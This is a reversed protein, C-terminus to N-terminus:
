PKSYRVAAARIRAWVGASFTDVVEVKTSEYAPRMFPKARAGPHMRMRKPQWHPATGFEVLHAIRRARRRFAVWFVRFGAGRAEIKAVAVGQDLHGGRPMKGPQRLVKANEVTRVRLPELAQRCLADLQAAPSQGIGALANSIAQDGTVKGKFGAAM